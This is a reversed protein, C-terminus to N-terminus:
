LHKHDNKAFPDAAQIVNLGKEESLNALKKDNLHTSSLTKTVPAKWGSEYVAFSQKQKREDDQFGYHLTCLDNQLQFGFIDLLYHRRACGSYVCRRFLRRLTRFHNCSAWFGICLTQSRQKLDCLWPLVTRLKKRAINYDSDSFHSRWLGQVRLALAVFGSGLGRWRWREANASLRTSSSYQAHDYFVM